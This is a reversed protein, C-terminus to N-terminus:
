RVARQLFAACTTGLQNALVDGYALRSRDDGALHVTVTLGCAANLATGHCIM